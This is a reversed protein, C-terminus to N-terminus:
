CAAVFRGNLEKRLSEIFNSTSHQTRVFGSSIVAPQKGQSRLCPFRSGSRWFPTSRPRPSIRLSGKQSSLAGGGVHLLRLICIAGGLLCRTNAQSTSCVGALSKEHIPGVDVYAAGTASSNQNMQLPARPM